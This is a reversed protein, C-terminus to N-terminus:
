ITKLTGIPQVNLYEKWPEGKDVKIFTEFGIKRIIINDGSDYKGHLCDLVVEAVQTTSLRTRKDEGPYDRERMKTDVRGPSVAYADYKEMALSQVLSVLGAKSACYGSHEAKGYKGAVSSIFVMKKVDYKISYRAILYSGFLNVMLEEYWFVPNSKIIPFVYSVGACNVVWDPRHKEMLDKYASPNVVDLEDKDVLISEPHLDKIAKAIDSGGGFILLKSM